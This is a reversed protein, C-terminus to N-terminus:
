NACRRMGDFTATNFYVGLEESPDKEVEIELEDGNVKCALLLLREASALYHYDIVDRLKHGDISLIVDGPELGVEAGISGPRVANIVAKGKEAGGM